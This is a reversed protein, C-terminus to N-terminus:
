DANASEFLARQEQYLRNFEDVVSQPNMKLHEAVAAEYIREFDEETEAMILSASTKVRFELMKAATDAFESASDLMIAGPLGTSAFYGHDVWWETSSKWGMAAYAEKQRANLGYEDALATHSMLDPYQGDGLLLNFSPAFPVPNAGIVRSLYDSDNIANLRVETFVRKGEDDRTWHVGEIGSRLTIQGEDTCAWNIFEVIREPYRCKDTIGWANFARTDEVRIARKQGAAFQNNSMIPLKVYCMNEKGANVLTQNATGFWATYFVSIASANSMKEEVAPWTDTFSEMDLIGERYLRNFFAFSDKVSPELFEDVFEDKSMDFLVGSDANNLEVFNEGKEYLMTPMTTMGWSEAFPVCLGLTPMGDTEPFDIMAQKLFDVWDDETVLTPWGYYELIDSRVAMDNVEIDTEGKLPVSVDWRVLKGDAALRWYPIADSFVRFFDGLQDAYQDLDILVGARTYEQVIKSYEMHQVEGYDGSALQLSELEQMNGSYPAYEIVIGFKDRIYAGIESDDSKVRETPSVVIRLTYLERDADGQEALASFACSSCIMLLVLVITVLKKM